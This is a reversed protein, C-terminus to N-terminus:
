ILREQCYHLIKYWQRFSVKSARLITKIKTIRCLLFDFKKQFNHNYILNIKQKETEHMKIKWYKIKDVYQESSRDTLKTYSQFHQLYDTVNQYRNCLQFSQDLIHSAFHLSWLNQSKWASKEASCKDWSSGFTIVYITTSSGYEIKWIWYIKWGCRRCILHQSSCNQHIM